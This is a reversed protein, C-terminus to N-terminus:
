NDDRKSHAHELRRASSRTRPQLASDPKAGLKPGSKRWVQFDPHRDMDLIAEASGFPVLAIVVPQLVKLTSGSHVDDSIGEFSLYERVWQESWVHEGWVLNWRGTKPNVIHTVTVKSGLNKLSCPKDFRLFHYGHPLLINEANASFCRLFILLFFWAKM